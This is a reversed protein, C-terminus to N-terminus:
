QSTNNLDLQLEKVLLQFKSILLNIQTIPQINQKTKHTHNTFKKQQNKSIYKRLFEINKKSYYRRSKIKHVIFNPEVTEIYRLQYAEIKLLKVVENISYYKKNWIM